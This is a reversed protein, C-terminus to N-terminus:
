GRRWGRDVRHLKEPNMHVLVEAIADERWGLLLLFQPEDGRRVYLGLQGNAEAWEVADGPAVARANVNFLFRAVRDPGLVPRRAAYRASGADTVLVVDDTLMRTLRVLDGDVIAAVFAETLARVADPETIGRPRGGRVRARARTAIQRTAEESREVISAIEAFPTGFVDHLLFVAREVPELSELVRLFGVTLTDRAVVDDAVLDQASSGLAGGAPALQPEPLWPGTYVERRARASTLRDLAIRTTVTTLWAEPREISDRDASSWRLWADQVVDDADDPTGLMRYAVARLRPRAAEFVEVDRRDSM